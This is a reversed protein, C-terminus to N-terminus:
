SASCATDKLAYIEPLNRWAGHVDMGCGFLYRNPVRVGVFDAAIPKSSGIDKDALMASYFRRAGAAMVRERIAVLTHGHDLIDDVVLVTRGAVNSGPAVKWTLSGGATADGYRSVQLYDFELPFRLLPLLQGAFVVAGGMVALVLPNREALEATIEEAIRKISEAVVAASCVPEATTLIKWAQAPSLM